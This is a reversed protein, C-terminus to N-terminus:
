GEAAARAPSVYVPAERKHERSELVARVEALDTPSDIEGWWLGTIAATEVRVSDAMGNVVSLYWARLADPDRVACDLAERFLRPGEGRFVMLGISEGNVISADLTKGVARLRRGGNLSVKMDDDDYDNKQNIAITLVSPSSALLSELVPVEFLTDGNLLVFDQDMEARALWCTILNDTTTYFPNYVARTKLGPIRTEALFREVKEAGFGVLITAEDVGCAALARLQVELVSEPGRVPLLCKPSDATLPLLRKGQGASLIIAKM